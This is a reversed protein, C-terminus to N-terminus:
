RLAPSDRGHCGTMTSWRSITDHQWQTLTPLLGVVSAACIISAKDRSIWETVCMRMHIHVPAAEFFADWTLLFKNLYLKIEPLPKTLTHESFSTLNVHHTIFSSLMEESYFGTLSHILTYVSASMNRMTSWHQFHLTNSQAGATKMESWQELQPTKMISDWQTPRHMCHWQSATNRYRKKQTRCATRWLVGTIATVTVLPIGAFNFLASKHTHTYMGITPTNRHSHYNTSEATRFRSVDGNEAVFTLHGMQRICWNLMRDWRPDGRSFCNMVLESISNTWEYVFRHFQKEPMNQWNFQFSKM